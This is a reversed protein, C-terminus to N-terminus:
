KNYWAVHTADMRPSSFVEDDSEKGDKMWYGHGDYTNFWGHEVAGQWSHVDMIDAYDRPEKEYVRNRNAM